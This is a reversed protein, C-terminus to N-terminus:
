KLKGLKGGQYGLKQLMQMGKNSISTPLSQIDMSPPGLPPLSDELDLDDGSDRPRKKPNPVVFDLERPVKHRTQPLSINYEEIMLALKSSHTSSEKVHRKIHEISKFQARCLICINGRTFPLDSNSHPPLSAYTSSEAPINIFHRGGRTPASMPSPSTHSAQKVNSSAMLNSLSSPVLNTKPKSPPVSNKLSFEIPGTRISTIPTESVSENTLNLPSSSEQASPEPPSICLVRPHGFDLPTGYEDIFCGMDIRFHLGSTIDIISGTPHHFMYQHDHPAAPHPPLSIPEKYVVDITPQDSVLSMDFTSTVADIHHVGEHSSHPSKMPFLTLPFGRLVIQGLTRRILEVMHVHDSFRVTCIAASAVHDDEFSIEAIAVSSPIGGLIHVILGEIEYTSRYNWPLGHIHLTADNWDDKLADPSRHPSSRPDDQVFDTTMAKSPEVDHYYRILPQISGIQFPKRMSAINNFVEAAAPISEYNVLVEETPYGTSPDFRRLVDELPGFPKM